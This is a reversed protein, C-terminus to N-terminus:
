TRSDKFLKHKTQLQAVKAELDVIRQDKEKNKFRESYLELSDDEDDKKRKRNSKMVSKTLLEIRRESETELRATQAEMRESWGSEIEVLMEDYEAGIEKRLDREGM